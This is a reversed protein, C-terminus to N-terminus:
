SPLACPRPPSVLGGLAWGCTHSRPFPIGWDPPTAMPHPTAATTNRPTVGAFDSPHLEPNAGGMLPTQGAQLRALNQAELTIRDAGGATTSRPTRM